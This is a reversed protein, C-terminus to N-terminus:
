GPVPMSFVLLIIYLLPVWYHRKDLRTFLNLVGVHERRATLFFALISFFSLVSYIPDVLSSLLFGLPILTVIVSM